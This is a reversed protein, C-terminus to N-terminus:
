GSNSIRLDQVYVNVEVVPLGLAQELSFKVREMVNNAVESIRVGYEMIVYLNVVIKDDVLNVEVGRHPMTGTIFRELGSGKGALGVIGYSELVVQSVLDAVAERTIEIKGLKIEKPMRKGRLSFYLTIGRKGGVKPAPKVGSNKVM